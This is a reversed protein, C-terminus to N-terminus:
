EEDKFKELVIIKEIIDRLTKEEKFSLGKFNKKDTLKEYENYLAKKKM